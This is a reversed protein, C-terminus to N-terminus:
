RPTPARSPVPPSEGQCRQPDVGQARPAQRLEPKGPRLRTNPPPRISSRRSLRDLLRAVVAAVKAEGSEGARARRSMLRKLEAVTRMQRALAGVGYQYLAAEDLPEPKKRPSVACCGEFASSGGIPKV